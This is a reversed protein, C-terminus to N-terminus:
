FGRRRFLACVSGLVEDEDACGLIRSDVAEERNDGLFFVSGDPVTLPMTVGGAVQCTEASIGVEVVHHGNVLLGESDINVVDGAQAVVRSLRVTSGDMVAIVEGPEYARDLRYWVVVDGAVCVPSMDNASLRAAGFVFTFVLVAVSVSVVLRSLLVALDLVVPRVNTQESM